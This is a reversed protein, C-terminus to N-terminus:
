LVLVVDTQVQIWEVEHFDGALQLWPKIRGQLVTLSLWISTLELLDFLSELGSDLVCDQKGVMSCAYDLGM